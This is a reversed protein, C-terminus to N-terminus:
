RGNSSWHWPESPLNQIGFGGANTGVWDRCAAPAEKFKAGNCSLDIALGWEHMSLGPPNAPYGRRRLDLQMETSRFSGYGPGAVDWAQLTFGAARAAGFFATVNATWARNVVVNTGPVKEVAVDGIAGRTGVSCLPHVSGGRSYQACREMSTSKPAAKPSPKTSSKARDSAGAAPQPGQVPARPPPPLGGDVTTPPWQPLAADAAPPPGNDLVPLPRGPASVAQQRGTTYGPSRGLALGATATVLLAVVLFRLLALRTVPTRCSRVLRGGSYHLQQM